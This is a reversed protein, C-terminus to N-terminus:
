ESSTDNSSEREPKKGLWQAVVQPMFLSRNEAEDRTPQVDCAALALTGAHARRNASLPDALGGQAGCVGARSNWGAKLCWCWHSACQGSRRQLHFALM